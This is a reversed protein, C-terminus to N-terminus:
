KYEYEYYSYGGNQYYNTANRQVANLIVGKIEVGNQSFRKISVEVEKATNVIYRAVVMSTGAHRGIIAADTVALIPPTDILVIDYNNSAWKLLAPFHDNMLLESPNPPIKGRSIINLENIQTSKIVDKAEKQGSLVDSLGPEPQKNLLSHLYGKRMDADILLVKKGSQALVASLNSIIFSKGISPSSGSIMLINNKADIMAFHLTTRLSRISEIALDTPNGLALLQKATVNGKQKKGKTYLSRDEKLQWESLPVSAYVNIGLSELAVPSEIGQRFASKILVVAISLFLGLLFAVLVVFKKNPKIPKIQTVAQDIIRVNGVTGAKMISLEQQKNMLQLYIEQNVQVDRTLRLIEQQTKPMASVKKNLNEKEETLTQRKELLARYAPHEKTYLKSIEAERFTLENLQSDLSVMNDLVSKAELSLDVSDNHQRYLNLKNESDDLSERVQPLKTKLFDLSKAAEESKREINQLLYNTTISALIQRIENPDDGNISLGIIGSDRARDAVTLNDQLDNIVSIPNKKSINFKTGKVANTGDVLIEVGNAINDKGFEGNLIINGDYSLSYKKENEVQLELEEGLLYPPVNIKSISIQYPKKNLLRSIGEGILPFYVQKVQVSLNLDQVTKGVVMRSKILEIEPASSSQATPLMQSLDSLLSNGVNQEVQVLADAQYIPTALMTYVIGIVTFLLTLAIILWKNDILIGALHALNIEDNNDKEPIISTNNQAMPNEFDVTLHPHGSRQLLM